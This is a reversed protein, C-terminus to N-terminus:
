TATRLPSQRALLWIGAIVLMTRAAVCAAFPEGRQLTALLLTSLSGISGTQATLSAGIREIAMMVKLVPAFTCVPANLVSLWLVQCAVVFASLPRLIVFQAICIFCAVTTALGTLRLAGLRKVEEGSYA